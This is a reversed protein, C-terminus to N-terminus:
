TSYNLDSKNLPTQRLHWKAVAATRPQMVGGCSALRRVQAGGAAEGARGGHVV